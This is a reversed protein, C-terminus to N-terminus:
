EQPNPQPIFRPSIAALHSPARPLRGMGVPTKEPLRHPYLLPLQVLHRAPLQGGPIPAIGSRYSRVPHAARLCRAQTPRPRPVGRVQTARIAQRQWPPHPDYRADLLSVRLGRRHSHGAQLQGRNQFALRLPSYDGTPGLDFRHLPPDRQRAYPPKGLCLPGAPGPAALAPEPRLLAPHHGSGWLGSQASQSLAQPLSVLRSPSDQRWLHSTPWPAQPSATALTPLLRRRQLARAPGPPSRRFPALTPTQRRRLLFR